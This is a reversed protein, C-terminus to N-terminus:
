MIMLRRSIWSAFLGVNKLKTRSDILENALLVIDLIQRGGVFANQDGIVRKM